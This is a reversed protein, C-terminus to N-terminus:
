FDQNRDLTGIYRCFKTDVIRFKMLKYLKNTELEDFRLTQPHEEKTADIKVLDHLTIKNLKDLNIPAFITISKSIKNNM